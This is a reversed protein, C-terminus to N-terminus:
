AHLGWDPIDGRRRMAADHAELFEEIMVQVQNGVSRHNREALRKLRELDEPSIRVHLDARLKRRRM